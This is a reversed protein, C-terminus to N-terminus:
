SSKKSNHESERGKRKKYTWWPKGRTSKNGGLESETNVAVHGRQQSNKGTFDEGACFNVSTTESIKTRDYPGGCFKRESRQNHKLNRTYSENLEGRAGAVARPAKGRQKGQSNKYTNVESPQGTSFRVRDFEAMSNIRSVDITHSQKATHSSRQKRSSTTMEDFSSVLSPITCCARDAKDVNDLESESNQLLRSQLLRSQSPTSTVHLVTDATTSSPLLNHQGQMHGFHPYRQIEGFELFDLIVVTVDDNHRGKIRLSEKVLSNAAKTCDMKRVLNGAQKPSMADWLGDTAIILRGGERPIIYQRIEPEALVASGADADGLSRSMALGGPWVRLPGAEARTGESNSGILSRSITSGAKIVRERECKSDELRHNSSVRRAAFKCNASEDVLDLVAFSDGVSAVTLSQGNLVAVTATTGGRLNHENIRRDLELFAAHLASPLYSAFEQPIASNNGGDKIAGLLASQVCSLVNNSAFQAAQASGHGDLVAWLSFVEDLGPGCDCTDHLSVFDEGKQVHNKQAVKISFPKM